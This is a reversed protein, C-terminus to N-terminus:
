SLESAITLLAMSKHCLCQPVGTCEAQGSRIRMAQWAWDSFKGFIPNKSKHGFCLKKRTLNPPMDHLLMKHNVSTCLEVRFLM